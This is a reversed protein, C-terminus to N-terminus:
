KRSIIYEVKSGNVLSALLTKVKDATVADIKADCGTTFDKSDLYRMTIAHLWYEPNKKRESMHKKLLAKYADLEEKSIKM